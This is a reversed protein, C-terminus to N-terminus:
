IEGKLRKLLFTHKSVWRHEFIPDGPGTWVATGKYAMNLWIRKNTYYCKKPFLCYKLQWGICRTKFDFEASQYMFM